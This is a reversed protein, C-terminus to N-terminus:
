GVETLNPIIDYFNYQAVYDIEPKVGERKWHPTTAKHQYVFFYIHYKREGTIHMTTGRVSQRHGPM